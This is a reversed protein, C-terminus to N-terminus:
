TIALSLESVVFKPPIAMALMALCNRKGINPLKVNDKIYQPDTTHPISTTKGECELHKTGISTITVWVHM